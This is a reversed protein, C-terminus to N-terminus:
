SLAQDLREVRQLVTVCGGGRVREPVGPQRHVAHIHLGAHGVHDPREAHAQSHHSVIAVSQSTHPSRSPVVARPSRSMQAGQAAPVASSLRGGHGRQVRSM